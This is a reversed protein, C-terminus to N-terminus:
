PPPQSPSHTGADGDNRNKAMAFRSYFAQLRQAAELCEEVPAVLAVRIFNQGPNIGHAARALYSGPVVTVNYQEFFQKTFETDAIPTRLWLYFAAQPMEVETAPSLIALTKAFKELYLRRNEVVHAEDSWAAASAAQVAPNM